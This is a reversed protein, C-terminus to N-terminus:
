EIFVPHKDPLVRGIEIFNKRSINGVMFPFIHRQRVRCEDFRQDDCILLPCADAPVLLKVPCGASIVAAVGAKEKVSDHMIGDNIKVSGFYCTVRSTIHREIDIEGIVEPKALLVLDKEPYVVPLIGGYRRAFWERFKIKKIVAADVAINGQIDTVPQM